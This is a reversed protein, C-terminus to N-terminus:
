FKLYWIKWYLIGATDNQSINFYLRKKAKTIPKLSNWVWQIMKHEHKVWQFLMFCLNRLPVPSFNLNHKPFVVHFLTNRLSVLSFYLNHRFNIIEYNHRNISIFSNCNSFDRNIVTWKPFCFNKYYCYRFKFSTKRLITAKM